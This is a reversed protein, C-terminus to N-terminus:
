WRPWGAITGGSTPRAHRPSCRTPVGMYEVYKKSAETPPLPHLTAPNGDFWGLYFVYVAKVNHNMTGYYGRNSWYSALPEPLEVQEAIEKMSRGQNALRLTQDNIFRYLDRQRQLHLGVRERGWVPWHHMGYLVEAQAGWRRITENLYKSWALPDRLKTGRLSYLNHLTHTANEAATLAKLEPLYWHMEVPAESGPAVLFQFKLGDITEEQGDHDIHSTPPILTVTGTSTTTGLGAGVQGLPSAPLLNGYMYTARRGMVNGTLVNENIAHELFGAPGFIKVKGSKVEEDSIVGRVGGFHDVHSHSYIVAVINRRPRHRFYLELAAKATEASILPDVM